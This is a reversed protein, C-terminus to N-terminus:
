SNKKESFLGTLIFFIGAFVFSEGLGMRDSPDNINAIFRPIHLLVFWSLIMIGSLLAAFRRTLPIFLGIGGAILCVGCFYTWFSRFPIYSPIFDTVFDAYKFHALGSIILFGALTM